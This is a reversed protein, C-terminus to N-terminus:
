FWGVVNIGFTQQGRKLQTGAGPFFAANGRDFRAEARIAAHTGLRYAPTITLEHIRAAQGTGLRTGDLDEFREARLALTWPGYVEAKAYGAIGRWVASEGDVIASAADERGYDGNVGLTLRSTAKWSVIVDVVQRLNSTNEAQEGGALYNVSGSVGGGPSLALSAGFTKADNNDRVNDWGNVALLSLSVAPTFAYGVKVGTHTLPIAYNFLLSRSYHDNYGDYGEIVEMGLPTVFKGADIRLGSGVPAIYSLAAHQLDVSEGWDLGYSRTKKPITGGATVDIRFGIDNPKAVARQVVLEAIDVNFTRVEEDFVRFANLRNAPDNANHTYGLSMFGNAQIGYWGPTPSPTQAELAGQMLPLALLAAAFILRPDARTDAHTGTRSRPSRAM